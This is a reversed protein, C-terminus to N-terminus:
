CSLSAYLLLWFLVCCGSFGSLVVQVRLFLTVSQAEYNKYVYVCVCVAQHWM